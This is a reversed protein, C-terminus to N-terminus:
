INSWSSRLESVISRQAMSGIGFYCICSLQFIAQESLFIYSILQRRVRSNRSWNDKIEITDSENPLPWLNILAKFWYYQGNCLFKLFIRSSDSNQRFLERECDIWWCKWHAIKLSVFTPNHNRYQNSNKSYWSVGRALSYNQWMNTSVVSAPFHFLQVYISNPFYSIM